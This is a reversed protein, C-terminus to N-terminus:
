KRNVVTWDQTFSRVCDRVLADDSRRYLTNILLIDDHHLQDFVSKALGPVPIEVTRFKRQLTTVSVDDQPFLLMDRLPSSELLSMNEQLFKEYDIPDVIDINVASTM